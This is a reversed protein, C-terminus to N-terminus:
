PFWYGDAILPLFIDWESVPVTVTVMHSATVVGALNRASVTIVQTGTIDWTFNVTDTIGSSHVIPLQNDAQWNYELPVTTSIPVTLVTILFSHNALEQDSLLLQDPPISREFAGIDYGSGQPRSIGDFDDSPANISSAASIAPSNSQLHFDYVMPDVFNPNGTVPDTGVTTDPDYFLNHDITFKDESGSILTIQPNSHNQSFINNRITVNSINSHRQLFGHGSNYATNNIFYLDAIPGAVGWSPLEYAGNSINYAVNNYVWLDDGLGGGESELIYGYACNYAINNYFKIDYTHHTQADVGFALKPNDHVINNHVRVAHSGDKINIGEGGTGPGGNHVENYKIEINYSGSAVSLNEESSTANAYEIENRDVVIDHGNWIGIGSNATNYTYNEAMYVYHSHEVYLGFRNSNIVRLGIINVYGSDRIDVIGNWWDMELGTGDLTVTEGPYNRYTVYSNASGEGNGSTVQLRENYVGGRIIIIDGAVALDVGHQITRWPKTITGPNNDSGNIAVYYISLRNFPFIPNPKVFAMLIASVAIIKVVVSAKM